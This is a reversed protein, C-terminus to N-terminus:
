RCDSREREVTPPVFPSVTVVFRQHLDDLGPTELFAVGEGQHIFETRFTVRSTVGSPVDVETIEDQGENFVYEDGSPFGILTQGHTHQHIRVRISGDPNETTSIVIYVRTNGNVGELTCAHTTSFEVEAKFTETAAPAAGAALVAAVSVVALALAARM